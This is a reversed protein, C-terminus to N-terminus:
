AVVCTVNVFTDALDNVSVTILTLSHSCIEM